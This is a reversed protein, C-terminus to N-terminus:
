IFIEPERRAQFNKSVWNAIKNITPDAVVRAGTPCNKVCACCLTCAMNDTSVVNDVTIAAVPCCSACTGCLTCIEEKTSASRDALTSRDRDIYPINGPIKIQTMDNVSGMTKMKDRIKAGFEKAIAMDREDPRGNAMPRTETALSHEGVFAGGAVPVFGLEVAIDHLEILADEFDRNGYVVIVVAPTNNAKLRRLRQIATAAVRGEYVPVGLVVLEDGMEAVDKTEAGPTTLDLHEVAAIGTGAAIDALITQTTKTPSFYALKVTNFNMEM